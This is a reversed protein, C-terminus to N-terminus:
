AIMPLMARKSSLYDIYDASDIKTGKGQDPSRGFLGKQEQEWLSTTEHLDTQQDKLIIYESALYNPHPPQSAKNPGAARRGELADLPSLPKIHFKNQTNNFAARASDGKDRM